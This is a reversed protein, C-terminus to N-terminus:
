LQLVVRRGKGSLSVTGTAFHLAFGVVNFTPEAGQSGPDVAQYPFSVGEGLVGLVVQVGEM